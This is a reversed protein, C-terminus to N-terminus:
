NRAIELHFCSGQGPNSNVWLRGGHLDSIRRAIALGLGAGPRPQGSAARFFREFIRGQLEPPIGPGEDQVSLSIRQSDDNLRVTVAGGDPSFKVANEILNKLLIRVLDPDAQVVYTADAAGAIDLGIRVRRQTALPQLRAITELMAEDLRTPSLVLTGEGSDVRALLLLDEVLRSLLDLEQSASDLWRSVEEPSCAPAQALSKRFVDLEGRLIALPTKLEHSADAVFREQGEFAKQLRDLLRNLTISLSQLEDRVVPVPLRESITARGLESAKDIIASIPQLARSAILLGVIASLVLVIPIGLILLNRLGKASQEILTMPVALQLIFSGGPRNSVLYTVMRYASLDQLGTPASGSRPFIVDRDLTTFVAGRQFLTRWSDAEVPLRGRRLNQSSAIVKGDLGVVQAFSAGLAFPVIKGRNSLLDGEITVGGFLDVSIGSALDVAHNFLDIDFDRHQTRLLANYLVSSFIILTTGFVAVYFATLRFRLSRQRFFKIKGSLM